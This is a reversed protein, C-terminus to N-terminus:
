SVAIRLYILSADLIRCVERDIRNEADRVPLVVSVKPQSKM